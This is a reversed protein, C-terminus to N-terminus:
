RTSDSVYARLKRWLTVRSIGLRRAALTRSGGCEDLVRLISELEAERASLKLNRTAPDPDADGAEEIPRPLH